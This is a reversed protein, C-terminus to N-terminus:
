RMLADLARALLQGTVPKRLFGDFGADRALTEAEADARATVALLRGTFGNARLTRALDFGDEAETVALRHDM